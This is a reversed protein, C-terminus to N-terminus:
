CIDCEMQDALKDNLDYRHHDTICSRCFYIMHSPECMKRTILQYLVSPSRHCSLCVENTTVFEIAEQLYSHLEYLRNRELCKCNRLENVKDNIEDLHEELCRNCVSYQPFCDPCGVYDISSQSESCFDCLM